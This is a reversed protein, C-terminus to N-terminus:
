SIPKQAPSNSSGYEESHFNLYLSVGAAVGNARRQTICNLFVWLQKGGVIDMDKCASCCVVLRGFVGHM